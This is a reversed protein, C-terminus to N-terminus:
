DEEYKIIAAGQEIVRKHTGDMFYWCPQLVEAHDGQEYVDDFLYCQSSDDNALIEDGIEEHHLGWAELQRIWASVALVGSNEVLRATCHRFCILLNPLSDLQKEWARLLKLAVDNNNDHVAKQLSGLYGSFRGYNNLLESKAAGYLKRQKIVLIHAVILILSILAVIIIAIKRENM